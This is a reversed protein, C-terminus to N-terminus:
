FSQFTTNFILLFFSFEHPLSISTVFPSLLFVHNQSLQILVSHAKINHGVIMILSLKQGPIMTNLTKAKRFYYESGVFHGDKNCEPHLLLM